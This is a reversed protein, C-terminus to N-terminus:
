SKFKAPIVCQRHLFPLSHLASQDLNKRNGCNETLYRKLKCEDFPNPPRTIHELRILRNIKM